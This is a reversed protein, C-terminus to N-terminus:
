EGFLVKKIMILERELAVIADIVGENLAAMQQFGALGGGTPAMMVKKKILSAHPLDDPIEM